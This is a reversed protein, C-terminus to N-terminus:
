APGLRMDAYMNRKGDLWTQYGKGDCRYCVGGPGVPKGNVVGTVFSGTMACRRCPVQATTAARVYAVAIAEAITEPDGSKPLRLAAGIAAFVDADRTTDYGLYAIAVAYDARLEDLGDGRLKIREVISRDFPRGFSFVRETTEAVATM